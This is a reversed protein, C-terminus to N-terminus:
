VLGLDPLSCGIYPSLMIGSLLLPKSTNTSANNAPSQCCAHLASGEDTNNIVPNMMFYALQEM